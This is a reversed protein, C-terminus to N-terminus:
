EPGFRVTGGEAGYVQRVLVDTLPYAYIRLDDINGDFNNSSDGGIYMTSSSDDAPAGDGNTSSGESEGNIYLTLEDDADDEWIVCVHSWAGTPITTTSNRSADATALDFLASVEVTSASETDVRVYSSGKSWLEGANGEGDTDPYIWSCVSYGQKNNLDIAIDASVSIAEDSGDFDLSYNLKGDEWDGSEFNTMTGNSEHISADYVTSTGTNEDLRWHGSPDGQNMDWAIQAPTRAYDYVKAEDIIGDILDAGSSVCGVRFTDTGNYPTGSFSTPTAAEVGNLYLRVYSSDLVLAAHYWTNASLADTSNISYATEGTNNFYGELTNDSDQYWLRWTQWPSGSTAKTFIAQDDGKDGATQDFKVWAMATITNSPDFDDHDSTRLTYEASGDYLLGSGHWGPKWDEEEFNYMTLNHVNTSSSIDYITSTGTNENFNWHAVPSNCTTTDGPVCYARAASDDPNGSADTGLTGFKAAKAQNYDMRIQDATLISSYVKVEDIIGDFPRLPTGDPRYKGIYAHMTTDWVKTAGSGSNDEEGDIYLKINSEDDTVAVHHWSSDTIASTSNVAAAAGGGSTLAVYRLLGDTYTRFTWGYYGSTNTFSIIEGSADDTKVWATITLDDNKYSPSDIHVYDDSGDFDLAKGYKGDNTWTPCAGSTPCTTASGALDGDYEQVSSDKADDGYGRDFKWYGITSGVPSGPGPHGANMDEIVQEHTRAYNYIRADDIVGDFEYTSNSRAGIAVHESADISGQASCDDSDFLVGDVYFYLVEDKRVGSAFHWKGDDLDTILGGNSYCRGATTDDVSFRLNGDYLGIEWGPDNALSSYAFGKQFLAQATSDTTKFWISVTFDREGFDYISDTGMDLEDDTGDFDMGVGYKGPVYDEGSMSGITDGHNMYPSSDVVKFSGTNEYGLIEGTSVGYMLDQDGDNDLDALLPDANTGLDSVDWSDNNTWEPSTVSGTNEYAESHGASDGILVDLDGDGDLDGLNPSADDGIDAVDWADKDTWVPAYISGTNEYANTNGADEGILLDLDGDNDLDGLTVSAKAGVDDTDWDTNATWVPGGISGTNEYGNAHGDNEGLLLDYDGDGDLDGLAVSGNSGVDDTDWANKDTWVPNTNSGTNEVGEANGASDGVLLDYDGDGDLDAYDLNADAGNDVGDWADKNTWTPSTAAPNVRDFTWHGIPGPTWGYLDQVEQQTLARNYYRFEDMEGDFNYSSAGNAGSGIVVVGAAETCTSTNEADTVDEGNVFFKYTNDGSHVVAMHQWENLTIADNASFAAGSGSCWLEINNDHSGETTGDIYLSVVGIEKFIHGGSSEGWGDPNIWLAITYPDDADVMATNEIELFDDTGDFDLGYGYQGQTWDASTMTSEMEAHNGNGSQDHVDALSSGIEQRVGNIKWEDQYLTGSTGADIGSIAGIRAENILVYIDYNDINAISGMEVGDVWVTCTGDSSTSSEARTLQIEVYHPADTIDGDYVTNDAAGDSRAIVHVEYNSGDYELQSYVPLASTSTVVEMNIFSDGSAMTLSNPDIYYRIRIDYTSPETFSSSGYISNTDDINASLGYDTGALAAAASVSLDGSDTTSSDYEGLSNGEHDVSVLTGSRDQEMQWYGVLGDNLYGLDKHGFTAAVGAGTTGRLYDMKIQDQTRATGYIKFEDIMGQWANFSGDGDMGLFLDDFNAINGAASISADTGILEGDIYLKISSTGDKVGTVLHWQNDDYTAATSTVSDEPFSSTDDDIGFTIDGDAEMLLKYGGDGNDGYAGLMASGDDVVLEDLYFTGSTGADVGQAAGLDMYSMNAFNTFLDIDGKNGVSNGDIWVNIVGDNSLADTAKELIYEVYHSDDTIETTHVTSNSSNDDTVVSHIQYGNATTYLLRITLLPNNSSDRLRYAMFSDDNAMTLTNPDIYFRGRIIGSSPASQNVRGYILTTDDINVSMGYDTGALAAGASTSLDGSDTVTSDYENLDNAEHDIDAELSDASDYKAVIVDQGSSQTDHKIWAQVTFDDEEGFDADSDDEQSVYDGDGDFYLCQGSYCLDESLWSAQNNVGDNGNGTADCVDNTGDTCTNDMGEDMKWWLGPSNGQEQVDFTLFSAPDQATNYSTAIWDDSREVDSVRVEDIYGNFEQSATSTAGIFLQEDGNYYTDSTYSTPSANDDQGDIYIRVENDTTDKVGVVYYWTDTQPSTDAETTRSTGDSYAFSVQFNDTDNDDDLDLEWSRWPDGSTKHCVIQDTVGTGPRGLPYAWAEVTMDTADLDAHDPVRVYDDANDFEDAGNIQGIDAGKQAVNDGDSHHADQASNNHYGSTEHLHYVAVYNDDWVGYVNEQPGCSACGYYVYIDTDSTGSLSPIRVWANLEGSPTDYSEIEHDLKTTGDDLTFMFDNGNDHFVNGGNTTTKWEPDTRSVLIPFDTLTGSGSVKASNVTIKKRYLWSENAWAAEAPKIMSNLVVLGVIAVGVACLSRILSRQWGKGAFRQHFWLKVRTFYVTLDPRPFMGLWQPRPNTYNKGKHKRM